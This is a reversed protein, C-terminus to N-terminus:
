LQPHRHDGLTAAQVKGIRHRYHEIFGPSLVSKRTPYSSQPIGTMATEDAKGTAGKTPPSAPRPISGKSLAINLYHTISQAFNFDNRAPCLDREAGHFTRM